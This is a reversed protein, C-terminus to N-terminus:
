SPELLQTTQHLQHVGGVLRGAVSRMRGDDRQVAPAGVGEIQEPQRRM